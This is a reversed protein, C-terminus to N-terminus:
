RTKRRRAEELAAVTRRAAARSATKAEKAALSVPLALLAIAGLTGKRM